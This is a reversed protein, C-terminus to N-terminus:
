PGLRSGLPLKLKLWQVSRQAVQLNKAGSFHILNQFLCFVHLHPVSQGGGLTGSGREWATRPEKSHCQRALPLRSFERASWVLVLGGKRVDPDGAQECYWPCNKRELGSELSSCM